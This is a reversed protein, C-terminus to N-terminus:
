CAPRCTAPAARSCGASCKREAKRFTHGSGTKAFSRRKIPFVAGWFVNKYWRWSRTTSSCQTLGLQKSSDKRKDWAQRPLDDKQILNNHSSSSSSSSSSANGVYRRQTRRLWDCEPCVSDGQAATGRVFLCFHVVSDNEVKGPVSTGLRDQCFIMQANPTIFFLRLFLRTEAGPDRLFEGRAHLPLLGSKCRRFVCKKEVGINEV